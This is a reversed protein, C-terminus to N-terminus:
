SLIRIALTHKLKAAARDLDALVLVRQEAVKLKQRFDVFLFRALAFLGGRRITGRSYWYRGSYRVMVFVNADGGANIPM